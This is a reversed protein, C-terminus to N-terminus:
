KRSNSLRQRKEPPSSSPEETPARKGVKVRARGNATTNSKQDTAKPLSSPVITQMRGHFRIHDGHVIIDSPIGDKSCKVDKLLGGFTVHQLDSPIPKPKDKFRPADPIHAHVCLPADKANFTYQSVDMKWTASSLDVETAPGGIITFPPQPPLETLPLRVLYLIDAMFNYGKLDVGPIAASIADPQVRALTTVVLCYLVEDEGVDRLEGHNYFRAIAKLTVDSDDSEQDNSDTATGQPSSNEKLYLYM